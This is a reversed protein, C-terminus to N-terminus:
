VSYSVGLWHMGASLRTGAGDAAASSLPQRPVYGHIELVFRSELEGVLAVFRQRDADMRFIDWCENGRGTVHYWGGAYEYRLARAMRMGSPLM